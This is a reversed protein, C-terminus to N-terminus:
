FGIGITYGIWLQHRYRATSRDLVTKGAIDIIPRGRESLHNTFYYNFSPGTTISLHKFLQYGLNFNFRVLYNNENEKIKDEAVNFWRLEPNIFFTKKNLPFFRSGFGAGYTWYDGPQLGVSLVSYFKDLGSRFSLRYPVVEDSEIAPSILGGKKVINLLGFPVGSAVTDAWNVVSLQLGRVQRAINIFGTLQFGEMDGATNIFGSMQVGDMHKTHNNFGAIQWGKMERTINSFGGMQFGNVSDSAVNIFGAIQAGKVYDKTTNVFGGMQLGHVEGGVTNGFGGIQVGRVEERDINYFGGLEVGRNGYAYGAILNLSFKNKIQSSMKRNTGISPIFSFQFMRTDVLNVNQANKRVKNSTFFKSLGTSFTRVRERISETFRSEREQKLVIPGQLTKLQSVQIITDQYYKKSIVFTAASVNTEALLNFEGKENSLTSRLSNVEYISVDQLEEGTTADKIGGSIQFTAKEKKPPPAKQIIIYNGITKLEYADGLIKNLIIEPTESAFSRNIVVGSPLIQPNYSLQRDALDDLRLLANELSENQFTVTIKQSVDASQGLLAASTFVLIGILTLKSAAM